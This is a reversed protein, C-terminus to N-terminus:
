IDIAMIKRIWWYGGAVMGAVVLLVLRGVPETFLLGILTPDLFYAILVIIPALLTIFLAQYRGQATIADLKGELRQIERISEAIRDLSEGTNGGRVRHMEIATFLLRFNSLGVRNATNRMAQNLDLGMQYERLLQGFEQKIPGTHDKVLMEMAQVLTLGARVGSALTVIGDVLQLELREKRKQELHRLVIWPVFFGVTAFAVFWLLDGLLYGVMGCLLMGCAMLIMALRPSVNLLLQYNLVRDMRQENRFWWAIIMRSGYAVFLFVSAFTLVMLLITQRNIDM